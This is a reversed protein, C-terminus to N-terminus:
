LTERKLWLVARASQYDWKPSLGSFFIFHRPASFYIQLSDGFFIVGIFINLHSFRQCYRISEVAVFMGHFVIAVFFFFVPFIPSIVPVCSIQDFQYPAHLRFYHDNLLYMLRKWYKSKWTLAIHVGGCVRDRQIQVFM